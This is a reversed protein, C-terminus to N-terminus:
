IITRSAVGHDTGLAPVPALVAAISNQFLIFRRAWQVYQTETRISYHKILIREWLQDLTLFTSFYYAGKGAYIYVQSPTYQVNPM